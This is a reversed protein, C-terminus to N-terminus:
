DRSGDDPLMVLPQAWRPSSGPDCAGSFPATKQPLGRAKWCISKIPSAGPPVLRFSLSQGADMRGALQTSSFFGFDERHRGSLRAVERWGARTGVRVASRPLPRGWRRGATAKRSPEAEEFPFLTLRIVKKAIALSGEHLM